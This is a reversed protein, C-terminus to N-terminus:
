MGENGAFEQLPYPSPARLQFRDTEATLMGRGALGEAPSVLPCNLVRGRTEGDVGRHLLFSFLFIKIFVFLVDFLPARKGRVHYPM